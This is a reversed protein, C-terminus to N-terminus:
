RFLGSLFIWFNWNGNSSGSNGGSSSGTSAGSSSGSNTQAGSEPASGGETGGSPDSGPGYDGLIEAVISTYELRNTIEDTLYITAAGVDVALSVSMWMSGGLVVVSDVTAAGSEDRLFNVLTQKM